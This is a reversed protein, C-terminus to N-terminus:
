KTKNPFDLKKANYSVTQYSLDSLEFKDQCITTLKLNSDFYTVLLQKFSSVPMALLIATATILWQGPQM